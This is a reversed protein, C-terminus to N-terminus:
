IGKSTSHFTLLTDGRLGLRLTELPIIDKLAINGLNVENGFEKIFWAQQGKQPAEWLIKEQPISDVIEEVLGTRLESTGRYLGSTGSERGEAIVKWAGAGLENKMGSVWYHPARVTAEDKSGYESIVRLKAAATEICRLKESEELDITGDSIEVMQVGLDCARQLFEPFKQQAYAVEFLTGGICVPIEFERYLAIKEELRHSVVSTGWGLKVYDAYSHGIELYDRITRLGTGSDLIMTVGTERPKSPRAPLSLQNFNQM